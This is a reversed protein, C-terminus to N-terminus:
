FIHLQMHCTGMDSLYSASLYGILVFSFLVPESTTHCHLPAVNVAANILPVATDMLSLLHSLSLLFPEGPSKANRM